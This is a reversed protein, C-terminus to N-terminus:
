LLNCANPPQTEDSFGCRCGDPSTSVRSGPGPCCSARGSGGACGAPPLPKRGWSPPGRQLGGRQLRGLLQHCCVHSAAEGVPEELLVQQQTGALKEWRREEGSALLLRHLFAAAVVSSGMRPPVTVAPLVTAEMAAHVHRRGGARAVPSM